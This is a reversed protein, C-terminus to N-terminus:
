KIAKKGPTEKKMFEFFPTSKTEVPHVEYSFIRKKAVLQNTGLENTIPHFFNKTKKFNRTAGFIIV